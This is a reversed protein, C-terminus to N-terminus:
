NKAPGCLSLLEQAKYIYCPVVGGVDLHAIANQIRVVQAPNSDLFVMAYQYGYTTWKIFTECYLHFDNTLTERGEQYDEVAVGRLIAELLDTDRVAHPYQKMIIAIGSACSLLKLNELQEPLQFNYIM